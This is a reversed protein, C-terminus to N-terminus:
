SFFYESDRVESANYDGLPSLQVNTNNCENFSGVWDHNHVTIFAERLVEALEFYNGAHCGYSDHVTVIDHKFKRVTERMHAGDMSHIFNATIATRQRDPDIDDVRYQWELGGEFEKSDADKARSAQFVLFGDPAVWMVPKVGNAMLGEVTKSLVKHTHMLAGAVETLADEMCEAYDFAHKEIVEQQPGKFEKISSNIATKISAGYGTVMVPQKMAARGLSKVMQAMNDQKRQVLSDVLENVGDLYTDRPQDKYTSATCNTGNATKRCHRLAAGHQLGNCTGDQHCVLHSPYDQYANGEAQWQIVRYWEVAATVLQYKKKTQSPFYGDRAIRIALEMGENEAWRLKDLTSAKDMGGLNAYHIALAAKGMDGLPVAKAFQFAAKQFDHGQPTLLGGRYYWRGRFDYTVLFRFPKGAEALETLRDIQEKLVGLEKRGIDKAADKNKRSVEAFRYKLVEILVPNITFEVRQAKNIAKRVKKSMTNLVLPPVRSVMHHQLQHPTGKKWDDVDYLPLMSAPRNEVIYAMAEDVMKNFGSAFYVRWVGHQKRSELIGATRLTDVVMLLAGLCEQDYAILSSGVIDDDWVGGNVITTAIAIHCYTGYKPAIDMAKLADTIVRNYQYKGTHLEKAYSLRREQTYRTMM